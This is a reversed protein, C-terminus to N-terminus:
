KYFPRKIKTIYVNKFLIKLFLGAESSNGELWAIFGKVDM